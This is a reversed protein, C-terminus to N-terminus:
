GYVRYLEPLIHALNNYEQACHLAMALGTEQPLLLKRITKINVIREVMVSGIFRHLQIHNGIWFRSRMELGGSFRRVLHCMCTHQKINRTVSGVFGCIVTVIHADEFRSTDFGFEAPPVFHISLKEKGRKINELVTEPITAAPQAYYAAYPKQKEAETLELRSM